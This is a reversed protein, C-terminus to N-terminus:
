ISFCIWVKHFSYRISVNIYNQENLITALYDDECGFYTNNYILNHVRFKIGKEDSFTRRGKDNDFSNIASFYTRSIYRKLSM